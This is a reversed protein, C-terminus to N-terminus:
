AREKQTEEYWLPHYTKAYEVSIMGDRFMGDFLPRNEKYLISMYFHMLAVFTILFFFVDHIVLAWEHVWIPFLWPYLLMIGSIGMFFMFIVAMLWYSLIKETPHHFGIRPLEKSLGFYYKITTIADKFDKGNVWITTKKRLGITHYLVHFIAVSGYIGAALKHIDRFADITIPPVLMWGFWERSLIPLGTIIFVPILVMIIFHELREATGWRFVKIESM